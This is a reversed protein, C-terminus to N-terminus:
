NEEHAKRITISKNNKLLKVVNIVPLILTPYENSKASIDSIVNRLYPFLIAIANETLYKEFSLADSEDVNYIFQGVISVTIEFPSHIVTLDGIKATLNVEAYDNNVMNIICNFQTNLDVTGSSDFSHNKKYSVEDIYYDEFGIGAM